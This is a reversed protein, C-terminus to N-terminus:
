KTFVVGNDWEIRLAVGPSGGKVVGKAHGSPRATVGADYWDATVNDGVVEGKASQGNSKVKWSFNKGSQQIEYVLGINSNWQGAISAEAHAPLSFAFVITLAFFASLFMRRTMARDRAIYYHVTALLGVARFTTPNRVQAAYSIKSKMSAELQAFISKM